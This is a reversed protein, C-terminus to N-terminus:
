IKLKNKAMQMILPGFFDKTLTPKLLDPNFMKGINDLSFNQLKKSWNPYDDIYYEALQKIDKHASQGEQLIRIIKGAIKVDLPGTIIPEGKKVGLGFEPHWQTTYISSGKESYKTSGIEGTAASKSLVKYNKEEPFMVAYEHLMAVIISKGFRKFIPDNQGMKTIEEVTPGQEHWENKILFGMIMAMLEHGMCIGGITTPENELLNEMAKILPRYRPHEPSHAGGGIIFGTRDKLLKNLKQWNEADIDGNNSVIIFNQPKTELIKKREESLKKMEENVVITAKEYSSKKIERPISDTVKLDNANPGGPGFALHLIDKTDKNEKNEQIKRLLEVTEAEEEASFPIVEKSANLFEKIAMTGKEPDTQEFENGAFSTRIKESM